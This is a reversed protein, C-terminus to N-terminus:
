IRDAAVAALVVDKDARLEESAFQLTQGRGSEKVAALVVDKDARLEKSALMLAWGDYAVAALM